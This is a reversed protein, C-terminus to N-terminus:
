LLCFMGTARTEPMSFLYDMFPRSDEGVGLMMKPKVQAEKALESSNEAAATKRMRSSVGAAMIM